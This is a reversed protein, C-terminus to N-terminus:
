RMLSPGDNSQGLKESVTKGHLYQKDVLVVGALVQVQGTGQRTAGGVLHHKDRLPLHGTRKDAHLVGGDVWGM